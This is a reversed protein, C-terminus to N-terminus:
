TVGVMWPSFHIFAVEVNLVLLFIPYKQNIVIKSLYMYLKVKRSNRLCLFNLCKFLITLRCIVSKEIDKNATLCRNEFRM